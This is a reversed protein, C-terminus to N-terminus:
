AGFRQRLSALKAQFGVYKLVASNVVEQPLKGQQVDLAARIDGETLGRFLENTWCLAHPAVIVTDLKFIPDDPDPPEVEFVDLGAGAIRKEQLAATLAKQDIIAGRATNIIYATPKMLALREANVLHRTAATLPCNVALIDSRCFLEDLGIREIGLETDLAANSVPDHAIFKMDFPKALRFLEAGINGVGISGLTLGVLGLGMNAGRAQFGAAGMRALRDKVMLKGTLALMFAIISVAVPRRVGDPTICLAIGNNTCADVDVKDYGVGWRAIVALRGSKPVSSAAFGVGMLILADCDEMDEARVPDAASIIKVEVSRASRLTSLDFDAFVPTGDPKYFDGSIAVRYPGNM